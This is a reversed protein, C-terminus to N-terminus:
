PVAIEVPLVSSKETFHSCGSFDCRSIGTQGFGWLKIFGTGARVDDPVVFSVHTEGLTFGFNRHLRWVGDGLSLSALPAFSDTGPRVVLTVSHGPHLVGDEPAVVGLSLPVYMNQFEAVLEAKGDSLVFTSVRESESPVEAKFRMGLCHGFLDVSGRDVVEQPRGNLTLRVDESLRPCWGPEGPEHGSDVLSVELYAAGGLRPERFHLWLSPPSAKLDEVGLEVGGGGCGVTGALLGGLMWRRFTENKM